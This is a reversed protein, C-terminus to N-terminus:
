FLPLQRKKLLDKSGMREFCLPAIGLRARLAASGAVFRRTSPDHYGSVASLSADHGQYFRNQREMWLERVYKGVMSAFAVPLHRGDADVEFRVRGVGHVDYARTTGAAKLGEVGERPFYRWKGAYNRMGGVMGCLALLDSGAQTRADLVLEEMMSLDLAVRSTGQELAANLQGACAISTRAHHLEAGHAALGELVARGQALSGGFCPVTIRPAWCQAESDRPCRARLAPPGRLGLMAFLDDVDDPARGTLHQCVALALGEAAAMKGFGATRKSDDIGLARGVARWRSARYRPVVLTAATVVLPGLLPGLGNEDVGTILV